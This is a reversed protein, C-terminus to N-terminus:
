AGNHLVCGFASKTEISDVYGGDWGTKLEITLQSGLESCFGDNEAGEYNYFTNQKWFKCTSCRPMVCPLVGNGQQNDIDEAENKM